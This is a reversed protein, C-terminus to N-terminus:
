RPSFLLRLRDTANTPGLMVSIVRDDVQMDVGPTLGMQQLTARSGEVAIGLGPYRRMLVRLCERFMGLRGREAGFDAPLIEHQSAAGKTLADRIITDFREPM